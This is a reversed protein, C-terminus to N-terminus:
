KRTEEASDSDSVLVHFSVRRSAEQIRDQSGDDVPVASGVGRAIFVSVPFGADVLADRVRIARRTSILTNMAASGTSDSHGIIEIQFSMAVAEAARNLARVTNTVTEIQRLNDPNLHSSGAPFIITLNEVLAQMDLVRGMEQTLFDDAEVLEAVGQMYQVRERADQLWEMPATGSLQLVGAEYTLKATEPLSILRAARKEIFEPRFALYPEWEGSVDALVLGTGSLLSTPDAALPDRLGRVYFRGDRSGSKIVVIGPEDELRDLYASWRWADRTTVFGWISLSIVCAGIIIWFAPSKPKTQEDEALQVQLCALLHPRIAAFPESNGSFDQFALDMELHISEVSDQLVARLEQNPSGRVVAAIIAHPGREIWVTLDGVQMTDLQEGDQVTFSDHVFDQIATLMGSIMDADQVTTNGSEVDQLLLGTEKHILFVQDVQYLMTHSLVVEAFPRGTRMAEMRWRLGQLSLSHELTTNLSQITSSLANSIAKRIAPGIVPFIADVLPQPDKKVSTQIAEEVTSSLARALQRDQGTRRIIADPLVDSVEDPTLGHPRKALHEVDERLSELERQERNLILRRLEDLSDGTVESPTKKPYDDPTSSDSM